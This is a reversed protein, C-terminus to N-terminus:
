ADADADACLFWKCSVHSLGYRLKDGLPTDFVADYLQKVFSHNPVSLYQCVNFVSTFLRMSVIRHNWRVSFNSLLSLAMAQSIKMRESVEETILRLDQLLLDRSVFKPHDLADPIYALEDSLM